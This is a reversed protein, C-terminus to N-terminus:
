PGIKAKKWEEKKKEKKRMAKFMKRISKGDTREEQKKGFCSKKNGRPYIKSFKYTILYGERISQYLVM